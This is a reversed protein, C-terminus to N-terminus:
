ARGRDRIVKAPVGAAVVNPPLDKTVVSGAAVITGDGISVGAVVVVKAGLWTNAGIRIDAERKPLDMVPGPGADFDYDSATLMVDPALLAHEGIDIRGTSNGAWLYCGQGIHAGAGIRIREGNRVSVTPSMRVGAGTTIRGQGAVDYGFFNALRAYNKYTGPSRLTGLARGIGGRPAMRGDGRNGNQGTEDSQETRTSDDRNWDEVGARLRREAARDAVLNVSLFVLAAPILYPRRRLVDPWFPGPVQMRRGALRALQKNGQTIRVRRRFTARLTRPAEIRFTAGIPNVREAPSFHSYVFGDDAILDPFEAWRARGAESLGYIGSGLVSTTAYGLRRWVAFYARAPRSSRTTDLVPIPAAAPAGDALATAVLRLDTPSLQVDADLYIRPFTGAVADGANLAAVKSAAEIELVTVGDFAKAREITDDSCGNAVVIIEYQDADAAFAALCRTIVSSENHAPIVISARPAGTRDSQARGSAPQSGVARDKWQGLTPLNTTVARAAM